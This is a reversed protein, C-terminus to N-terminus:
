LASLIDIDRFYAAELFNGILFLRPVFIIPQPVRENLSPEKLDKPVTPFLIEM